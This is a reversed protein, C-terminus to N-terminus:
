SLSDSEPRDDLHFLASDRSETGSTVVSVVIAVGFTVPMALAGDFNDSVDGAVMGAIVGIATSLPPDLEAPRRPVAALAPRQGGRHRDVRRGAALPAHVTRGPEVCDPAPAEAPCAPALTLGWLDRVPGSLLVAAALTLGIMAAAGRVTQVHALTVSV